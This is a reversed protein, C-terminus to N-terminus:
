YRLYIITRLNSDIIVILSEFHLSQNVEKTVSKLLKILGIGINDVAFLYKLVM